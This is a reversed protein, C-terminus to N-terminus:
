RPLHEADIKRAPEAHPAPMIALHSDRELVALRIGSRDDVGKQRTLHALDAENMQERRLARRDEVGDRLVIRPVGNVLRLFRESRHSGITVLVDLLVITGAAVAFKAVSVEAWVVDDVLDGVILAVMFDIPTAQHVVRKGSARTVFLLYVYAVLARVAIRGLDM